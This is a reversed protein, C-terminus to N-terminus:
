DKRAAEQFLLCFSCGSDPSTGDIRDAVLRAIIVLVCRISKQILSGAERSLSVAQLRALDSRRHVLAILPHVPDFLPLERGRNLFPDFTLTQKAFRFLTRRSASFPLGENRNRCWCRPNPGLHFALHLRSRHANRSRDALNREGCGAALFGSSSRESELSSLAVSAEPSSSSEISAYICRNSCRTRPLESSMADVRHDRSRRPSRDLHLPTSQSLRRDSLRNLRRKFRRFSCGLGQRFWQAFWHLIPALFRRLNTHFLEHRAM